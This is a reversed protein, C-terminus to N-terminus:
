HKSSTLLNSHRTITPTFLDYNFVSPNYFYTFAKKFNNRLYLQAKYCSHNNKFSQSTM